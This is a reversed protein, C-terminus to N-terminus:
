PTYKPPPAEYAPPEEETRIVEERREEVRREDTRQGDTRPLERSGEERRQLEIRELERRQEVMWQEGDRDGDVQPSVVRIEDDSGERREQPRETPATPWDSGSVWMGGPRVPGQWIEGRGVAAKIADIDAQARM